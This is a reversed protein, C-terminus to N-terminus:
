EYLPGDPNDGSFIWCTTGPILGDLTKIKDVEGTVDVLGPRDDVNRQELVQVHDGPLVMVVTDPMDKPYTGFQKKYVLAEYWADPKSYCRLSGLVSSSITRSGDDSACGTICVIWLAM